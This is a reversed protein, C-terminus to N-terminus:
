FGPALLRTMREASKIGRESMSADAAAIQARGEDGGLLEGRRRRAVDAYLGMDAAEFGAIAQDLEMAAGARDARAAAVAARLLGAIPRAWAVEASAITRADREARAVLRKVDAGNGRVAAALASRARMQFTELRIIEVRLLMSRRLATWRSEVLGLAAAGNGQYLELQVEALLNWYHGMLFGERSWRDITERAERRARELDDEALWAHVALGMRVNTATLLDGRDEAEHLSVRVQRAQEGVRGLYFLAFIQYLQASSGEWYAGTCEDRFIREAHACEERARRWEGVLYATVGHALAAWGRTYPHDVRRACEDTLALLREARRRAPAGGSAVFCAEACLARAVRFPEGADLAAILGRAQFDAGRINDVMALTAASSWCLDIHTLAAGAVQSTDRAVFGLGRLRVRARNALLSLLARRPTPAMRMGAAGLVQRLLAMGEEFHGSRMLQVAALRQYDLARASDAHAVAVLFADAAERGRGANVLAHALKVQLAQTEETPANAGLVIAARYLRAARDFALAASAREAAQASYRAAKERDGAGSWHNALVEPDADGLAELARALTGHLRRLSAPDLHALVSERVRDHYAEITDSRGAGSTRVLHALRLQTVQRTLESADPADAAVTRQPLPGGAVAVLELVRRMGPDLRRIRSWLAEDLRVQQEREGGHSAWSRVVESIFLPHGGTEGVIASVVAADTALHAGSQRVLHETLERAEDPLLPALEILRVEDLRLRARVADLGSPRVTAVLLVAPADPPALLERLLLLSDDDAWQLDDITVVVRDRRALRSVLERLAAFVRTRREQPDISLGPVPADAVPPLRKLVPFVQALLGVSAPLLPTLDSTPLRRLHRELADVVEDVAKFPVSEREYCRGSLLVARGEAVALQATFERVLASKGVGSEGHLLVVRPEGPRVEDLVAGLARLERGRGVFRPPGGSSEDAVVGVDLRRLVDLGRPRARPDIRLLEDCLRALEPPADPALETVPPPAEHQKQAIIDAGMGHFPLQSALVQYLMVGVSYWDAPPGVSRGAAQEPAMYAVTGVLVDDVDEADAILGFDLLVVRGDRAVMINSPKVDRHVKQAAHLAHLGSALQRLSSRLRTLDYQAPLRAPPAPAHTRTQSPNSSVSVTERLPDLTSALPRAPEGTRGPCVYDLFSCGDVLEMSFFWNGDAEFLEGLGVLNPHHLDQLARFENKLRMLSLPSHTRLTKIAVREGRELDFAEYVVGMGGAGLARRIEFRPTGAFDPQAM